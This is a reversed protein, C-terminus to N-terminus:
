YTPKSPPVVLLVYTGKPVGGKGVASLDARDHNSGAQNEMKSVRLQSRPKHSLINGFRVQFPAATFM